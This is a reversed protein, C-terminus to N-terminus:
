TSKGYKQITRTVNSGNINILRGIKAPRWDKKHLYLVIYRRALVVEPLDAKVIVHTWTTGHKALIAEIDETLNGRLQPVPTYEGSWERTAKKVGKKLNRAWSNAKDIAHVSSTHDCNLLEGIRPFSWGRTHLLWTIARRCNSIRRARCRGTVETWFVGYAQLLCSISAKLDSAISPMGSTLMAVHRREKELHDEPHTKIPAIPKLRVPIRGSIRDKIAAYHARQEELNM